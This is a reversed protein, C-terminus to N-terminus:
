LQRGIEVDPAKPTVDFQALIVDAIRRAGVGSLAQVADGDYLHVDRAILTLRDRVSDPCRGDVHQSMWRLCSPCYAPITSM